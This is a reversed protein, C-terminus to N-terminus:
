AKIITKEILQRYKEVVSSPKFIQWYSTDFDLISSYNTIAGYLYKSIAQVDDNAFVAQKSTKLEHDLVSGNPTIGLIPRQYYFYKLIKSPFFINDPNVGDVALFVDSKQYYAECEAPTLMGHLVFVDDLDKQYILEKDKPTVSGIFNVKLFGRVEPHDILLKNVAKVFPEARRNLMFNGIHSIILPRKNEHSPAIQGKPPLPVTLPLVFIKKGIEKGYRERWLDAIVENDHIILDAKEAALREMAWDKNKLWKTKFIRYPSDAWPDYFQMVWPKGTALKIKLAAWHSANPYGVSHIYDPTVIGNKVDEIVAKSLRKGWAIWEYDPLWTLDPVLVRRVVAAFYQVWRDEHILITNDLTTGFLPKRDSAYVVPHWEEPSMATIFSRLCEGVPSQAAQYYRNIFLPKIM